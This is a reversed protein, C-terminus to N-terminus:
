NLDHIIRLVTQFACLIAEELALKRIPEKTELPM